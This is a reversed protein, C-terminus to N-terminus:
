FTTDVLVFTAFCHGVVEQFTERRVQFDRAACWQAVACLNLVVARSLYFQKVQPATALYNTKYHALIRHKLCNKQHAFIRRQQCQFQKSTQHLRSASNKTFQNLKTFKTFM